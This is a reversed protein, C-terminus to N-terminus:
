CSARCGSASATGSSSSIRWSAATAIADGAGVHALSVSRGLVLARLAATADEEPRWPQAGPNLDPSRPALAGVLRVEQHDDLLVTEADLVRM